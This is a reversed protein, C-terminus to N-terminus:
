SSSRAKDEADQIRKAQNDAAARVERREEGQLARELAELNTTYQIMLLANTLDMDRTVGNGAERLGEKAFPNAGVILLRKVQQHQKAKAWDAADV